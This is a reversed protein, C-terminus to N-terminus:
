LYGCGHTWQISPLNFDGVILLNGTLAVKRETSNVVEYLSKELNPSSPSRYITGIHIPEGPLNISIWVQELYPEYDSDIDINGVKFTELIYLVM